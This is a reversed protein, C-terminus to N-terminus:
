AKTEEMDDCNKLYRHLGEFYADGRRLVCEREPTRVGEGPYVGGRRPVCGREPTCVGKGPTRMGEKPYAGGRRPVFEREPAHM